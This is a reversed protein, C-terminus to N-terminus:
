RFRFYVRSLDFVKKYGLMKETKEKLDLATETINEDADFQEVLKHLMDVYEIDKDGFKQIFSLLMSAKEKKPQLKTYGILVDEVLSLYTKKTEMLTSIVDDPIEKAQFDDTELINRLHILRDYTNMLLVKNETDEEADIEAFNM